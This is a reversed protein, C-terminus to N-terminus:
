EHKVEVKEYSITKADFLHVEKNPFKAKATKLIKDKENFASIYITHISSNNIQEFIHNDNEALSSGIIVLNGSLDGLKDFCHKLYDNNNIVDTKNKHQFVCVVEQEENNLVDELKDYLAKDTQQTIKKLLQGDQYIHFAGHLFFLNQTQSSVDYVFELGDLFGQQRSGDDIKSLVANSKEEQFIQKVVRKIDKGKWGMKNTKSYETIENTFHTKTLKRFDKEMSEGSDGFNLSLKGHLRANKIESYINNQTVDLDDEVFKLSPLLAVANENKNEVPKYKLLLLYLFSDYNLTFYTTFEKLLIFIGENKEAYVNKIQDKVIEHTAKMFDCKIKNGIYKKLFINDSSIDEELQGIFLELDFKCDEAMQRADEYIGNNNETMKQFIEPYGTNIGLGRNFGNAILLHNEKGQIRQLVEKYTLIHKDDRM